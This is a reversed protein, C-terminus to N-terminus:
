SIKLSHRESHLMPFLVWSVGVLLKEVCFHFANLGWLMLFLLVSQDLM